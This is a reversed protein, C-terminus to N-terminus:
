SGDCDTDANPHQASTTALVTTASVDISKPGSTCDHTRDRRMCMRSDANKAAPTDRVIIWDM